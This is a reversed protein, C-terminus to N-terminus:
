ERVARRRDPVLDFAENTDGLVFLAYYRLFTQVPVAVFLAIVVVALVFLVAAIGVVVWGVVALVSLLAAGLLGLLGLPIAVVVAALLTAVGAAIGVVLHVVWGVVAYAAYQKWQGTLTPWFRRWAALLGRDERIMVPVVFATTFGGLLGSAVAVLVAAPVALALLGLSLDGNGVLVPWLVAVALLGVLGLTLVGLVLRFGFLWLGQRWRASWYRRITVAEHRLSEVFVFEMISGVLVFGLALLAVLAVIAVIVAVEPAGPSPMAGPTGPPAPGGGGPTGGTFQLPNSGGVGGVFFAVLALRVWRGRDFPWLFARTAAVADGVDDIAHLTM